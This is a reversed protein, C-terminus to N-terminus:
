KPAKTIPYLFKKRSTYCKFLFLDSKKINEKTLNNLFLMNITNVLNKYGEEILHIHDNYYSNIDLLNLNDIWDPKAFIVRTYKM